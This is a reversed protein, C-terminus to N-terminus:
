FGDCATGFFWNRVWGVGTRWSEGKWLCPRLLCRSSARVYARILRDTARAKKGTESMGRKECIERDQM